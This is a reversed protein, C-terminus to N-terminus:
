RGLAQRIKGLAESAVPGREKAWQDWYPQMEAVAKDLDPKSPKAITMKGAGLRAIIKDDDERMTSHNWGAADTAAKRVKAQLDASLRNYAGANAIYYSNNFNLGVLLGHRLLDQWLDAGVSGTIIGDVVGRDLASPVESAGITVPTAGFRRVFESQEPSAVRIKMGRIAGLNPLEKRAWIYQLPYAYGALVTVGKAAFDKDVYPQLIASAKAFEDYSQVLFPLRVVAGIPANGSFFLDDALQVVGQSVASTINNTAIQLTGAFHVRVKIQGATEKEVNEAWMKAGLSTTFQPASQHHYLAWQEAARAKTSIGILSAASLSAIFERRNM